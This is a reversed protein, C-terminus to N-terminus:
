VKPMGLLERARKIHYCLKGHVFGMCECYTKEDESTSIFITYGKKSDDENSDYAGFYNGKTSVTDLRIHSFKKETM